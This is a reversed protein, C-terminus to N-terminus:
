NYLRIKERFTKLAAISKQCDKITTQLIEIYEKNLALLKKKSEIM